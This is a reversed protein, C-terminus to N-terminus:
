DKHIRGNNIKKIFLGYGCKDLWKLIIKIGFSRDRNQAEWIVNRQEGVREALQGSGGSDRILEDAIDKIHNIKKM